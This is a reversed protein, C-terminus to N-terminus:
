KVIVTLRLDSSRDGWQKPPTDPNCQQGPLCSDLQIMVVNKKTSRNSDSPESYVIYGHGEVLFNEDLDLQSNVISGDIKKCASKLIHNKEIFSHACSEQFSGNSKWVLTGDVNAIYDGLHIFQWGLNKCSIGLTAGTQNENGPLFRDLECSTSFHGEARAQDVSVAFIGISMLITMLSLVIRKSLKM